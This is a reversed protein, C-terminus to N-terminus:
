GALVFCSVSSIFGSLFSNFPFTGVLCCYVFQIVGTLLVYLLYADIIKLKKPTNNVYESYFKKLVTNLNTMRRRYFKGDEKINAHCNKCVHLKGLGHKWYGVLPLQAVTHGVYSRIDCIILNPSSLIVCLRCVSSSLLRKPHLALRQTLLHYLTM